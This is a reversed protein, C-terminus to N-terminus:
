QHRTVALIVKTRQYTPPSKGTAQVPLQSRRLDVGLVTSMAVFGIEIPVVRATIEAISTIGRLLHVV